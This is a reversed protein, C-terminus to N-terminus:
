VRAEYTRPVTPENRDSSLLRATPVLLDLAQGIDYTEIYRSLMQARPSAFAARDRYAETEKFFVISDRTLSGAKGAVTSKTPLCPAIGCFRYGQNELEGCASPCAPDHLNMYVFLAKHGDWTRPELNLPGNILSPTIFLHYAGLGRHYSLEIPQNLAVERQTGDAAFCRKLGLPAYLIRCIERHHTPVFLPLDSSATDGSYIRQTVLAHRRSGRAHFLRRHPLREGRARIPESPLYGPLLAVEKSNLLTTPITEMARVGEYVFGTCSRWHQTRALRRVTEAAARTIDQSSQRYAPDIVPLSIVTDSPSGHDTHIALHAVIDRRDEAVLSIFRRGMQARWFEPDYVGPLPFSDGYVHNFLRVIGRIAASNDPSLAKIKIENM